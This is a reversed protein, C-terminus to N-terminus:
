STVYLTYKKREKPLNGRPQTTPPHNLYLTRGPSSFTQRHTVVHYRGDGHRKFFATKPYSIARKKKSVHRNNRREGWRCRLETNYREKCWSIEPLKGSNKQYKKVQLLRFSTLLRKTGPLSSLPPYP